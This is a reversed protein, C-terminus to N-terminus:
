PFHADDQPPRSPYSDRLVAILEGGVLKSGVGHEEALHFIIHEISLRGSPFHVRELGPTRASKANVHIHSRPKADSAMADFEYRFVWDDDDLWYIYTARVVEVSQDHVAVLQTFDLTGRSLELHAFRRGVRRV